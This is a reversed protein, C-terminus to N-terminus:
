NLRIKRKHCHLLSHITSKCIKHHIVSLPLLINKSQIRRGSTSENDKHACKLFVLSVLRECTEELCNVLIWLFGSIEFGSFTWVKSKDWVIPASAISSQCSIELISKKPNTVCIKKPNTEPLKKYKDGRVIPASAFFHPSLLDLLFSHFWNTIFQFLPFFLLIRFKSKFILKLFDLNTPGKVQPFQVQHNSLIKHSM